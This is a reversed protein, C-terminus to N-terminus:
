GSVSRILFCYVTWLVAAHLAAIAFDYVVEVSPQSRFNLRTVPQQDLTEMNLM